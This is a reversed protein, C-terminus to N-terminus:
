RRGIWQRQQQRQRDIDEFLGVLCAWTIPDNIGNTREKKEKKMTRSRVVASQYLPNGQSQYYRRLMRVRGTYDGTDVPTLESKHSDSEDVTWTKTAKGDLSSHIKGKVSDQVQSINIPEEHLAVRELASKSQKMEERKGGRTM